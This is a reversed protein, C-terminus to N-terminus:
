KSWGIVYKKWEQHYGSNIQKNAELLYGVCASGAPNEHYQWELYETTVPTKPKFVYNLLEATLLLDLNEM